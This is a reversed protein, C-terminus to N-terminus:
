LLSLILDAATDARPDSSQFGLEYAAAASLIPNATLTPLSGSWTATGNLVVVTFFPSTSGGPEYLEFTFIAGDTAEGTFAEMGSEGTPVLDLLVQGQASSVLADVSTSDITLRAGDQLLARGNLSPAAQAPLSATVALATIAAFISQTRNNRARVPM